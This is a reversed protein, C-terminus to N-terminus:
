SAVYTKNAAISVPSSFDAQQWGSSTEGSFTVSALLTGTNSWLHGVHTGTNTSSKYFRIGTVQGAVDSRFRVGLELSNGDGSDVIAPITSSSWISSAAAYGTFQFAVLISVLVVCAIFPHYAAQRLNVLATSAPIVCGTGTPCFDIKSM